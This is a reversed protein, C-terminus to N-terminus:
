KEFESYKNGAKVNKLLLSNQNIKLKQKIKITIFLCM